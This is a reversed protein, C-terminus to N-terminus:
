TFRYFKQPLKRHLNERAPDTLASPEYTTIGEEGPPLSAKLTDLKDKVAAIAERAKKGSRLIVSGGAVEGEGNLEAIGRRMEPGIQITAVDGLTVPVGGAAARFLPPSPLLTDTLSSTPPRRKM